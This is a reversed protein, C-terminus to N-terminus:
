VNADVSVGFVLVEVGMTLSWRNNRNITEIKQSPWAWEAEAATGLPFSSM